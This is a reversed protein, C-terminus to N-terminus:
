SVAVHDAVSRCDASQARREAPLQVSDTSPSAESRATEPLSAEPAKSVICLHGQLPKRGENRINTVSLSCISLGDTTDVLWRVYSESHAIRESQREVWGRGQPPIGGCESDEALETSFAFLGGPRLAAAVEVFLDSLDRMYLLVDAAVILDATSPEVRRQLFAVCDCAELADFVGSKRRAYDVMRRSLDCGILRGTCRSRLQAGALGTGCGLDIALRRSVMGDADAHELALAAELKEPVDYGLTQVLSHEFTPAYEDFLGEVQNRWYIRLTRESDTEACGAKAWKSRAAAEEKALQEAHAADDAAKAEAQNVAKAAKLAAVYLEDNELKYIEKNLVTREKKHEKGDLSPLRLKLAAIKAETEAIVDSTSMAFRVPACLNHAPVFATNAASQRSPLARAVYEHHSLCAVRDAEIVGRM